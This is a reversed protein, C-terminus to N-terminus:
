DGPNEQQIKRRDLLKFVVSIIIALLSVGCAYSFKLSSDSIIISGIESFQEGRVKALFHGCYYWIDLSVLLCGFFFSVIAIRDILYYCFATDQQRKRAKILFFVVIILGLLLCLLAWILYHPYARDSPIENVFSVDWSNGVETKTIKLIKGEPSIDFFYTLNISSKKSTDAQWVVELPSDKTDYSSLQKLTALDEKNMGAKIKDGVEEFKSQTIGVHNRPPIMLIKHKVYIFDTNLIGILIGAGILQNILAPLLWRYKKQKQIRKM